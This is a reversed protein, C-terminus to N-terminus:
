QSVESGTLFYITDLQIHKGVQVIDDKNVKKVEELWTHISINKPSIVNHYLVEVLGIASDITELLQNEIVAKTQNIIEESFDGKKMAEMQEEIITITKKYNESQIGSIVMLLGKHSEIRSAAFYALSNKERVEMFLKSHAFGGFIGNFVQLPFYLEDGYVIGTRYGINLKGQNVDQKEVIEKVKIDAAPREFPQQNPNRKSLSIFQDCITEVQQRDIDGVVYLDLEDTEMAHQYYDYLSRSTIENVQEITGNVELGYPEDNCMEEVLRVSSYKMKDDNLSQIRQKLARKEQDFSKQQFSDNETNPNFLIETLLEMGKTLLSESESLFKENAIEITFTIIHYEGKKGVNAYLTAGYLDELYSRLATTTPFKGCSSQMVHPLLARFAVTDKTLPAKMKWVITNTKYKHTPVIHINYGEKEIVVQNEQSM